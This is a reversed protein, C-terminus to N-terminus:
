MGPTVSVLYKTSTSSWKGTYSQVLFKYETGNALNKATYTTGTLTDALVTYKGNEYIAVAYKKAGEVANWTLTVQGDGPTATVVPIVSGSKPTASVLYKTSTSSWKTTYSQVLFKYETGNTLNKATYNTGTLTDALVTYKGNEYIAVAYKKAGEVANWTLTVQGDGATATVEPIVSSVPVASGVPTASVLYKTSTSSWKGTYSQVLFKYEKGNTLSKATYTTETLTSTLVTYKGNEYTAVAYKKAGEVANWTLTVQGDGAKATVEPIVSDNKPTASVLYKTSTSSWKNTYSQVLFKYEKGNTLDKATYTTGTLTNVLVTYKGNEYIAVAYKTAGDIKNWTLTVQGNGPTATVEPIVSAAPKITFTTAKTESYNGKGTITVTATGAKINNSYEVTYDTNNVLVTDGDRVTIAPTIASGTYTQDAISSITSESISKAVIKFTATKTGTYNGKGTVTVTATGVNVNNNYSVTYDTGNVLVIDGDRVTIVPTIASGTYTQDEISLITLDIVPNITFNATKTGTYNGKGTITVTATGVNVNNSYSVTYDTGSVLTKTGDKVTVAPTLASGTYTQDAISSITSNSISKAVIKFSASKTESYNEKGTVTVTATGVNVNNSYSVTYDTGNTLTKTGDKVTVAPTIASGTYTQDSISSITAGSISKAVIKFSVSKTGSYNGKGTVTVTATGLNVNNSYSVTYDTGNILTKTGDKVTVAPTLAYGTYTQNAISSITTGSIPKAVIKFTATKTGSYDGKGTVTVTATGVNTNNSYSVTYDTGNTLSNGGLSVTVSPSIASGTYTQNSISSITCGSVPISTNTSNATKDVEYCWVAKGTSNLWNVFTNYTSYRLRIHRDSDDASGYEMHYFGNKDCSVFCLSCTDDIRIHEGAQMNTVMFNKISDATYSGASGTFYQRESARSATEGFVVGSAFWCFSMSAYSSTDLKVSTSGDITSLKSDSVESIEEETTTAWNSGNFVSYQSTNYLYQIMEAKTKGARGTNSNQNNILAISKAIDLNDTTKLEKDFVFTITKETPYNASKYVTFYKNKEAFYSFTETRVDVVCPNNLWVNCDLIKISDDSISLVIMTHPYGSTRQSQIIYGPKALALANSTGSVSNATTNQSVQIVNDSNAYGSPFYYSSMVSQMPLGYLQYFVYRAYGFCQSGGSTGALSAPVSEDDYPFYNGNPHSSKNVDAGYTGSIVKNLRNIVEQETQPASIAGNEEVEDFEWNDEYEDQLLDDDASVHIGMATVSLAASLFCSLIKRRLKM